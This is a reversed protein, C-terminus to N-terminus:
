GWTTRIESIELKEVALSECLDPRPERHPSFQGLLCALGCRRFVVAVTRTPQERAVVSSLETSLRAVIGNLYTSPPDPRYHSQSSLQRSSRHEVAFLFAPQLTCVELGVLVCPVTKPPPPAVSQSVQSLEDRDAVERTSSNNTRSRFLLCSQSCKGDRRVPAPTGSRCGCGAPKRYVTQLPLRMVFYDSGIVFSFRWERLYRVLKGTKSLKRSRSRSPYQLLM